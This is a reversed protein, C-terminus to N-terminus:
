NEELEKKICNLANEISTELKYKVAYIIILCDIIYSIDFTLDAEKKSEELIRKAEQEASGIKAEGIARRVFFGVLIGVVLAGAGIVIAIWPQM